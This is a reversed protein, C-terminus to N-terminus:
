RSNTRNMGVRIVSRLLDSVSLVRPGPTTFLAALLGDLVTIALKQAEAHPDCLRLEEEEPLPFACELLADSDIRPSRCVSCSLIYSSPIVQDPERTTALPVFCIGNAFAEQLREGVVLALLTKGM